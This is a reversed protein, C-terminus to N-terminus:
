CHTSYIQAIRKALTAIMQTKKGKGKFPTGQLNIDWAIVCTRDFLRGFYLQTDRITKTGPIGNITDVLSLKLQFHSQLAKSVGSGNVLLTHFNENQLQQALFPVDQSLLKRKVIVSLKSWVPKTAWQVLDLSAASGDKYSAHSENLITELPKFWRYEKRQFYEYQDHLIERITSDPAFLLDGYGAAVYGDEFEIYSPNLGLTAIRATHANGFSVIPPTNPLVCCETPPPRRIRDEIYKPVDLM